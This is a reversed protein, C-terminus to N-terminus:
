CLTAFRKLIGRVLRVNPAALVRPLDHEGVKWDRTHSHEQMGHTSNRGKLKRRRARKRHRSAPSTHLKWNSCVVQLDRARTLVPRFEPVIRLYEWQVRKFFM